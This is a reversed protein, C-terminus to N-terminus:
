HGASRDNTAKGDQKTKTPLEDVMAGPAFIDRPSQTFTVFRRYGDADPEGDPIFYFRRRYQTGTVNVALVDCGKAKRSQKAEDNSGAAMVIVRWKGEVLIDYPAVGAVDKIKLAWMRLHKKIEEKTNTPNM